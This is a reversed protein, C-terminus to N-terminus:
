RSNIKIQRPKHVYAKECLIIICKLLILVSDPGLRIYDILYCFKFQIKRKKQIEPSAYTRLSTCQQDYIVNPNHQRIISTIDYTREKGNQKTCILVDGITFKKISYFICTLVRFKSSRTNYLELSNFRVLRLRFIIWVNNYNMTNYCIILWIWPRLMCKSM